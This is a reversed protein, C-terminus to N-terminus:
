SSIRIFYRRLCRFAFELYFSLFAFPSIFKVPFYNIYLRWTDKFNVDSKRSFYTKLSFLAPKLQPVHVEKVPANYVVYQMIGNNKAKISWEIDAHYHPFMESDFLGVIDFYKKHVFAFRGFITDTEILMNNEVERFKLSKDYKITKFLPFVWHIKKGLWRDNSQQQNVLRSAFVSNDVQSSVGVLLSITDASIEVGQDSFAIFEAGHDISYKIGHNVAGAWWNEDSIQLHIVNYKQLLQETAEDKGSEVVVITINKYDSNLFSKISRDTEDSRKYVPLIISVKKESTFSCM